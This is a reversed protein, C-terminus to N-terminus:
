TQIELSKGYTEWCARMTNDHIELVPRIGGDEDTQYGGALNWAIPIGLRKALAFVIQDREALQETTLWGGLPDNIHPDAGAQYLIVDCDSMLNVMKPILGLFKEAQDTVYYHAGASLHTIWEMHRKKIIDTTGNGYHMDFDLIGVKKVLGEKRLVCAAVVLGNFTCFGQPWDLGAHHFGSCPAVAVMRNRVAEKAASVMSGVTYPLSDAVVKLMNGFGNGKTCNLVGDVYYNEHALCLEDRTTPVPEVIEIPIGLKNWSAVVKIPKAPSPSYNEFIAVMKPTYFVKIMIQAQEGIHCDKISLMIKAAFSALHAESM